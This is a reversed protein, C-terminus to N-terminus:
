EKVLKITAIKNGSVYQIYYFGSEFTSLDLSNSQELEQTMLIQGKVNMLTIKGETQGSVTVSGTTPNPYATLNLAEQEDIGVTSSTTFSITTWPSFNGNGCNTRIHFYYTTSGTLASAAFTTGTTATGSGAPNGTTQDIVYEFTSGTQANWALNASHGAVNSASVGSPAVCPEVLTTFSITTWNSFNGGGCDTRVHLYYTTSADLGTANFTTGTAATGSTPDTAIEDLTYEFSNSGQADWSLDSSNETTNAATLGTPADCPELLTTFSITTWASTNGQVCNTRVHLYYTTSPTLSTANFTTGNTATGSTPDTAIQDVVYEYTSAGQANWSLDSSNHATNAATLGTPAICPEVLTTFSVTIWPSFNTGSCDTRLHFYYTTTPNLTTPNYTTGTTPTGLGTPDTAIQDIVYEFTNGGQSDWSINSSNHTTNAATLGTPALCPEILTTFSITTWGSTNGQVCNTRVHLYYTTLPDLGTANFITGNTVTGSTPDTAIQDVVYEYTSSGQANWSLDSSNHTTNAATLGTPTDCPEILTTFSTTSWSSFNGGGCNTRVHLYYTTSPNLGTANYTTGATSTGSGTPSTSTQDVLYEFSNSGQTNWSLDSSNHTTNASVLGTPSLCAPTTFNVYIWNSFNGTGCKRRLHFYYTTSPSLSSTSFSNTTLATGAGSPSASTQDLVYEYTNAGGADWNFDSSTATVNNEALNTPANCIPTVVGTVTLRSTLGYGTGASSGPTKLVSITAQNGANLTQGAAPVSYTALTTPSGCSSTGNINPQTGQTYTGANTLQFVYNRSGANSAYAAGGISTITVTYGPAAQIIANYTATGGNSATSCNSVVGNYQQIINIGTPVGTANTSGGTLGTWNITFATQAHLNNQWFGFALILLCIQLHTFIAKKM